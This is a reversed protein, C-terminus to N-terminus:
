RSKNIGFAEVIELLALPLTVIGVETVEEMTLAEDKM